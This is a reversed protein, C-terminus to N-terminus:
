RHCVVSGVTEFQYEYFARAAPIFNNNSNWYYVPAHSVPLHNIGIEKCLNRPFIACIQIEKFSVTGHGAAM